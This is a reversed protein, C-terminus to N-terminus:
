ILKGAFEGASRVFVTTNLGEALQELRAAYAIPDTEGVSSSDRLLFTLGLALGLLLVIGLSLGEVNRRRRYRRFAETILAEGTEPSASEERAQLSASEIRVRLALLGQVLERCSACDEVHERWVDPDELYRGDAIAGALRECRDGRGDIM